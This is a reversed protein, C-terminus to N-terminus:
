MLIALCLLQTAYIHKGVRSVVVCNYLILKNKTQNSFGYVNVVMYRAGNLDLVAM